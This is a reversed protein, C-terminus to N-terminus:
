MEKGYYYPSAAVCNGAILALWTGQGASTPFNIPKIEKPKAASKLQDAMEQAVSRATYPDNRGGLLVNDDDYQRSMARVLEEM